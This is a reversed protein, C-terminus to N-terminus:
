NRRLWRVTEVISTYLLLVLQLFGFLAEMKFIFNFMGYIITFVCVFWCILNMQPDKAQAQQAHVVFLSTAASYGLLVYPLVFNGHFNKTIGNMIMYPWSTLLSFSLLIGCFIVFHSIVYIKKNHLFNGFLSIMTGPLMYIAIIFSALYGFVAVGIGALAKKWDGLAILWIAGIVGAFTNLIFFFSAYGLYLLKTFVSLM